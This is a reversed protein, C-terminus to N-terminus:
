SLRRLADLIRRRIAQQDYSRASRVRLLPVSAAALAANLFKDKAIREPFRHSSDDLEIVVVIRFDDPSAIVFDAHRQSIKGGHGNRWSQESCTIIDAIRVKPCVVFDGRLAQNLTRFFHLENKTLLHLRSAYPFSQARPDNM